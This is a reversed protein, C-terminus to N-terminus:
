VNPRDGRSISGNKASGEDEHESALVKLFNGLRGEEFTRIISGTYEIKLDLSRLKTMLKEIESKNRGVLFVLSEPEGLSSVVKVTQPIAAIKDIVDDRAADRPFSAGVLIQEAVGLKELDIGTTYERIIGTKELKNVRYAVVNPHLALKRGIEAYSYKANEALEALIKFDTADIM